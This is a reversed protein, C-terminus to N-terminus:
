GPLAAVRSAHAPTWQELLLTRVPPPLESTVQDVAPAPAGDLVWPLFADPAEQQRRSMFAMWYETDFGEVILPVAAEEEHALHAVVVERFTALRSRLVVANDATPAALLADMAAQTADQAADIAEHEAGMADLVAAGKGALSRRLYPFVETDEITHHHHLQEAFCSWYASLGTAGVRRDAEVIAADSLSSVASTLRDLDRRVAGHIAMLMGIGKGTLEENV